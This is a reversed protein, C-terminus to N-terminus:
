MHTNHPCIAHRSCASQQLAYFITASCQGRICCHVAVPIRDIHSLTQHVTVVQVVCGGGEAKSGKLKLKLPKDIECQVGVTSLMSIACRWISMHNHVLEMCAALSVQAFVVPAYALDAVCTSPRALARLFEMGELQSAATRKGLHGVHVRCTLTAREASALLDAVKCV